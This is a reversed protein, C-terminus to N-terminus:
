WLTYLDHTHCPSLKLEVKLPGWDIKIANFCTFNFTIKDNKEFIESGGNELKNFLFYKLVM